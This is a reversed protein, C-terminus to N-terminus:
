FYEGKQNKITDKIFCYPPTSLSQYEHIEIAQQKKQFFPRLRM